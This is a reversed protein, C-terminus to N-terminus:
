VKEEILHLVRLRALDKLIQTAPYKHKLRSMITQLTVDRYLLKLIERTSQNVLFFRFGLVDILLHRRKIKVVFVTRPDIRFQCNNSGNLRLQLERLSSQMLGSIGSEGNVTLSPSIWKYFEPWMEWDAPEELVRTELIGYLQNLSRQCFNELTEGPEAQIPDHFTLHPRGGRGWSPVVPVIPAGTKYSLYAAGRRVHVERGLFSVKFAEARTGAEGGVGLNGDLDFMVIEGRKLARVMRLASSPNEVTIIRLYQEIQKGDIAHTPSHLERILHDVWPQVAGLARESIAANVLYGRNALEIFAFQQPGLHESVVVAGRGSSLAEQLVEPRHLEFGQWADPVNRVASNKLYTFVAQRALSRIERDSKTHHFALSLNIYDTYYTNRVKEVFDRKAPNRVSNGVLQSVLRARRHLGRRRSRSARTPSQVKELLQLGRLRTLEELVEQQSYSKQLQAMLRKLTCGAALERVIARTLPRAKIVRGRESDLLLEKGGVVMVLAKSPDVRHRASGDAMEQKLENYAEKLSSVEGAPQRAEPLRWRHLHFWEEFQEPHKRIFAESLTYLKQMGQRCFTEVDSARDPVIPDFLEMRPKRGDCWNAFLPIIPAQALYALHCTGKRVAIQQGFFKVAVSHRATEIQGGVGTNGDLYIVVAENRKLARLIQRASGPNEANIIHLRSELDPLSKKQRALQTKILTYGQASVAADLVLNVKFGRQILEYFIRRYAGIHQTALLAGHGKKLAQDLADLNVTEFVGWNLAEFDLDNYIREWIHGRAIQKIRQRQQPERLSLFLNMHACTYTGKIERFYSRSRGSLTIRQLSRLLALATTIKQAIRAM